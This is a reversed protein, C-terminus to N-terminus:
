DIKVQEVDAVIGLIGKAQEKFESVSGTTLYKVSGTENLKEELWTHRELYLSLSQAVIEGQSVVRINDPINDQIFQQIIPYHTCGLLIVDAQPFSNIIKELDALIFDQGEKTHHKGKEIIKVWNPCAYQHIKTQPSHEEFEVVYTMSSITGVTGLVVIQNSNSYDGVTEASPRIVGLVRKDPFQLLDNQQIRRLAKASATNCALVILECGRSLLYEVGQWTFEYVEEESRPGYPARKNDGLYLYDYQPLMAQVDKLVTLGGYGSDFFGILGNKQM